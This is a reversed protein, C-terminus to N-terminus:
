LSFILSDSPRGLYVEMEHIIDEILPLKIVTYQRNSLLGFEVSIVYNLSNHLFVGNPSIDSSFKRVKGFL